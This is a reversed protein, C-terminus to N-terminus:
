KRTIQPNACKADNKVTRAPPTINVSFYSTITTKLITPQIESTDVPILLSLQLSYRKKVGKKQIAQLVKCIWRKINYMFKVNKKFIIIDKTKLSNYIILLSSHIIDSPIVISYYQYRNPKDPWM